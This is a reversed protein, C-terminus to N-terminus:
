QPAPVPEPVALVDTVAWRHEPEILRLRLATGPSPPPAVAYGCESEAIAAILGGHSVVVLDIADTLQSRLRAWVRAARARVEQRREGAPWDIDSRGALVAEAIDPFAARIQDFTLGDAHGFDVEALDPELTVTRPLGCARAISEALFMTRRAPSSVITADHALRSGLLSALRLAQM